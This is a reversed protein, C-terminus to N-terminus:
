ASTQACFTRGSDRTLSYSSIRLIMKIQGFHPSVLESLKRKQPIHPVKSSARRGAPAGGDFGGGVVAGGIAVGCSAEDFITAEFGAADDSGVGLIAFAGSDDRVTTTWFTKSFGALGALRWTGGM